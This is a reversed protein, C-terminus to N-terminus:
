PGILALCGGLLLTPLSALAIAPVRVADAAGGQVGVVEGGILM